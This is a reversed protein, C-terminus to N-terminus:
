VFRASSITNNNTVMSHQPTTAAMHMRMQYIFHNINDLNVGILLFVLSVETNSTSRVLLLLGLGRLLLYLIREGLPIVTVLEMAHVGDSAPVEREVRRFLGLWRSTLVSLLASAAVCVKGLYVIGFM